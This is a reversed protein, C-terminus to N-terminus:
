DGLTITTNEEFLTKFSSDCKTIASIGIFEMTKQWREVYHVVHSDTLLVM